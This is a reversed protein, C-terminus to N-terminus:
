NERNPDISLRKQRKAEVRRRLEELPLMLAEETLWEIQRELQERKRKSQQKRVRSLRVVNHVM